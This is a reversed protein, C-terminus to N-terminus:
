PRGPAEGPRGAGERLARLWDKQSKHSKKHSKQSKHSKQIKTRTYPDQPRGPAEWPRGPCLPLIMDYVFTRAVYIYIYLAEPLGDIITLTYAPPCQPPLSFFRDVVRYQRRERLRCCILTSARARYNSMISQCLFGTLIHVASLTIHAFVIPCVHREPVWAGIRSCM